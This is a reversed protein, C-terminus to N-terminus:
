GIRRAHADLLSAVALTLRTAYPVHLFENPGHANTGPGLVGTVVFQASPFQRGLMGMFPITGGEGMASVPRDYALRGAQELADALWDATPPAAWGAEAAEVAVTVSAGGPPDSTLREVLAAAASKPDATPPLRFSLQLATRPRLVNGGDGISPLGDAAIVEMSPRWTRDLLQEVATASRPRTSGAFPLDSAPPHGSTGLAEAQRRREDPIDVHLEPVLVEGTRSDEVRDLVARLVAMSSPALGGAAGSHVGETLVDATVTLNVLGRLSTTTWLREFDGCGSDLCVVLDVDGIRDQLAAVHTPLDPSGSEESAEILLVCRGVRGGAALAAEIATLAAFAAYGDDAGGRGYLRDGELVPTWAGLEDRWGTMPPQKDLHGYLLTAPTTRDADDGLLEGLLVPTRGPLDVRELTFGDIPRSALWDHVLAVARDMHGHEAWDPDFGPSVNPIRIYDHLAPVIDDRWAREVVDSAAQHDIPV